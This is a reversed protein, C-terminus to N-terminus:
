RIVAFARESVGGFIGGYSWVQKKVLAVVEGKYFLPEGVQLHPKSYVLGPRMRRREVVGRAHFFQKLRATMDPGFVDQLSKNQAVARFSVGPLNKTYASPVRLWAIDEKVSIDAIDVTTTQGNSFQLVIKDLEYNGKSICTEPVIVQSGRTLVGMCEKQAFSVSIIQNPNVPKRPARLMLDKLQVEKKFHAVTKVAYDASSHALQAKLAAHAVQNKLDDSAGLVPGAFVVPLLASILYAVFKKKM